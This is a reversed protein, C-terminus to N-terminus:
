AVGGDGIGVAWRAEGPAAMHSWHMSAYIRSTIGGGHRGALWLEGFHSFSTGSLLRVLMHLKVGSCEEASFDTVTCVSLCVCLLSLIGVV